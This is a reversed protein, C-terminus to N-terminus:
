PQGAERAAQRQMEVWGRIEDAPVLVRRGIYIPIIERRALLGYLTTRGIGMAVAADDVRLLIPEM